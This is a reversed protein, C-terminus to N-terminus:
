PAAAAPLFGHGELARQGVPSLVLDLFARAAEPNPARRLTAIPYSAVVNAADPLDFRRVLPAVAPTVDSLYVVGADAEGLQVKAVVAKVNDENSVVNRLVQQVFGPPFGPERALKNIAERAYRGAPVAEAALVLKLGDRGLDELKTIAAPNSNPVIVVLRNRAFVRPQGEILGSDRLQAMWREDASAFIDAAAGHQIQFALLQSGAFNCDIQLDPQRHRLTDALANFAGTLSAAAFVTLGPRVEAAPRTTSTAAVSFLAAAALLGFTPKRM